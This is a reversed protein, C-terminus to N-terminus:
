ASDWAITQWEALADSIDLAVMPLVFSAHL